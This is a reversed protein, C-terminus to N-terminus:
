ESQGNLSVKILNNIIVVVRRWEALSEGNPITGAESRQDFIFDIWPEYPEVVDDADLQEDTVDNRAPREGLGVPVMNAGDTGLIQVLANKVANARNLSLTANFADTQTTDTFGLVAIESDKRDLLYRFEAAFERLTQWGCETLVASNINFSFDQDFNAQAEPAFTVLDDTLSNGDGGVVVNGNKVEWVWGLSVDLGIVSAQIGLLDSTWGPDVVLAPKEGEAFITISTTGVAEGVGIALGGSLTIIGIGGKIDDVTYDFPSSMTVIDQSGTLSVPTFGWGLGVQGLAAVFKWPAAHNNTGDPAAKKVTIEIYAAGLGAGPILPADAGLAVTTLTFEYQFLNATSIEGDGVGLIASIAPLAGRHNNYIIMLRQWYSTEPELGEVNRRSLLERIVTRVLPLHDTSVESNILAICGNIALANKLRDATPDNFYRDLLTFIGASQNGNTANNDADHGPNEGLLTSSVMEIESTHLPARQQSRVIDRAESQFLNIIKDSFTATRATQVFKTVQEVAPASPFARNSETLTVEVLTAPNGGIVGQINRADLTGATTIFGQPDLRLYAYRLEGASQSVLVARLEDEWIGSGKAHTQQWGDLYRGAQNLQLTRIGDSAPEITEYQGTLHVGHDVDGGAGGSVIDPITIDLRSRLDTILEDCNPSGIVTSRLQDNYLKANLWPQDFTGPPLGDASAISLSGVIDLNSTHLQNRVAPDIQLTWYASLENFRNVLETASPSLGVFNVPQKHGMASFLEFFRRYDAVALRLRNYAEFNSTAGIATGAIASQADASVKASLQPRIEQIAEFLPYGLATQAEQASTAAGENEIVTFFQYLELMLAFLEEKTKGALTANNLDVNGDGDIGNREFVGRDLKGRLKTALRVSRIFPDEDDDARPARQRPDLGSLQGQSAKLVETLLRSTDGFATGTGIASSQDILREASSFIRRRSDALLAPFETANNPLADAARQQLVLYDRLLKLVTSLDNAAEATKAAGHVARGLQETQETTLREGAHDAHWSLLRWAWGELVSGTADTPGPAPFYETTDDINAQHLGGQITGRYANRYALLTAAAEDLESESNESPLVNEPNEPLADKLFGLAPITFGKGEISIEFDPSQWKVSGRLTAGDPFLVEATGSASIKGDLSLYVKLPESQPVRFTVGGDAMPAWEGYFCAVLNTEGSQPDTTVRASGGGGPLPFDGLPPIVELGAWGDATLSGESWGVPVAGFLLPVPSSLPWDFNLVIGPRSVDNINISRTGARSPIPSPDIHGRHFEAETFRIVVDDGQEEIMAGAGIAFHAGTTQTPDGIGEPYFLFPGLEGSESVSVFSGFRPLLDDALDRAQRGPEVLAVFKSTDAALVGSTPTRVTLGNADTAEISLRVIRPKSTDFPLTYRWNSGLGPTANGLPTDGDYYVVSQIPKDSVINVNLTAVSGGPGTSTVFGADVDSIEIPATTGRAGIVRWIMSSAAVAGTDVHRTIEATATLTVVDEWARLDASRQLRYSKGPESEWAVRWGAGPESATVPNGAADVKVVEVIWFPLFVTSGSGGDYKLRWFLTAGAASDTDIYSTLDSTANVTAADEWRVLDSSRQLIYEEGPVSRWSLQWQGDPNLRVSHEPETPDGYAAVMAAIIAILTSLIPKRYKM